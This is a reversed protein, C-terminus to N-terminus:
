DHADPYKLMEDQGPVQPEGRFNVQNNYLKCTAFLKNCGQALELEDGPSVEYPFTEFLTVEGTAANFDVIEIIKGTNPGSTFKVTGGIYTVAGAAPADPAMSSQTGGFGVFTRTENATTCVLASYSGANTWSIGDNSYYIDLGTPVEQFFADGRCDIQFKHVDKASGFDISWWAMLEGNAVWSTTPDGDRAKSPAYVITYTSSASATGGTIANGSQDYFRIESASTNGASPDHATAQIKWYRHAGVSAAPTTYAGKSVIFQSRSRIPDFAYGTRVFDTYNLKCRSDCFDARCDPQYSEMFGFALAQHLGRIETEFMGNNNLTVQGFWGRRLKIDAITLDAWNLAFIYVNALDFLGNRLDNVTIRDSELFGTVDLNDVSMAADSRIATRNYGTESEYLLGDFFLDMDHDTFGFVQGDQRVIKWCTCLTTVEQSLHSAMGSSITKM